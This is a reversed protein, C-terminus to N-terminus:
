ARELGAHGRNRNSKRDNDIRREATAVRDHAIRTGITYQRPEPRTRKNRPGKAAGQRPHGGQAAEKAM